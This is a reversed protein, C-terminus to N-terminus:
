DDGGKQNHKYNRMNKEFTLLKKFFNESKEKM